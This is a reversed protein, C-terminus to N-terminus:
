WTDDKDIYEIWGKLYRFGETGRIEVARQGTSPNSLIEVARREGDKGFCKVQNLWDKCDQDKFVDITKLVGTFVWKEGQKPFDRAAGSAYRAAPALDSSRGGMRAFWGALNQGLSQEDTTDPVAPAPNPASASRGLFGGFLGSPVNASPKDTSVRPEQSSHMISTAESSGM